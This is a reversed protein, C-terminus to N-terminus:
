GVHITPVPLVKNVFVSAENKNSEGSAMTLISPDSYLSFCEILRNIPLGGPYHTVKMVRRRQNVSISLSEKILMPCTLQVRKPSKRSQKKAVAM